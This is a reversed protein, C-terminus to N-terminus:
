GSFLRQAEATAAWEQSDFGRLVMNKAEALALFNEILESYQSRRPNIEIIQPVMAEEQESVPARYVGDPRPSWCMVHSFRLFIQLHSRGTFWDAMPGPAATKWLSAKRNECIRMDNCFTTTPISM